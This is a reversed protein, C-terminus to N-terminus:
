NLRMKADAPLLFLEVKGGDWRGDNIGYRYLLDLRNSIEDKKHQLDQQLDQDRMERGLGGQALYCQLYIFWYSAGVTYGLHQGLFFARGAAVVVTWM